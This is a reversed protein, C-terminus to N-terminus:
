TPNTVQEWRDDGLDAGYLIDGLGFSFNNGQTWVMTSVKDQIRPTQRIDLAPNFAPPLWM